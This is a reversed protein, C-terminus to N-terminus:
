NTMRIQKAFMKKPLFAKYFKEYISWAEMKTAHIEKKMELIIFPVEFCSVRLGTDICGNRKYFGVRRTQIDRDDETEAFEPDEVEIIIRDAHGLYDDILKLMVAGVGKNRMEPYVALYDVLYSNDASIFCVYGVIIEGDFLGFFEYVGKKILMVIAALPKLEDDPFDMVMRDKYVKKIQKIDLKRLEM